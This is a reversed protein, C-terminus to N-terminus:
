QAPLPLSVALIKMPKGALVIQTATIKLHNLGPFPVSQYVIGRRVLIAIDGVAPLIDKRHCGYIALRFAHGINLFIKNSLCNEVRHQKLFHELELKRGRV